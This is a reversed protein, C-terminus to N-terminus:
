RSGDVVMQVLSWRGVPKPVSQQCLVQGPYCFLPFRGNDGSCRLLPSLRAPVSSIDSDKEDHGEARDRAIEVVFVTGVRTLSPPVLVFTVHCEAVPVKDLITKYSVGM